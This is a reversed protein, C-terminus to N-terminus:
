TKSFCSVTLPLLMLQVMHLDAGRELCIVLPTTPRSRMPVGNGYINKCPFPTGVFTHRALPLAPTVANGYINRVRSRARSFTFPTETAHVYCHSMRSRSKQDVVDGTPHEYINVSWWYASPIWLSIDIQPCDSMPVGSVSASKTGDFSTFGRHLM